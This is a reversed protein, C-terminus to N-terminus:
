GDVGSGQLTRARSRVAAFFADLDARVEAGGDFGSWLMRVRGVLEYCTDIPVVYYEHARDRHRRVVLAEVDPELVAALPNEAVIEAWASLDLLSETAGAPSPYHAVVRDLVSNHFFFAVAVPVQLEEWRGEGIAFQPDTLYREPVARYNGRGAGTSTFLLACPRCTCLLRRTDLDVVHSHEAHVDLGCMECYEGMPRPDRATFRSPAVPRASRTM